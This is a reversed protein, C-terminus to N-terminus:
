RSAMQIPAILGTMIDVVSEIDAACRRFAEVPSRVPDPLDDGDAPPVPLKARIVSVAAIMKQLRAQPPWVATLDAPRLAAAYRGFQLLTFTRRVASPDLAVCDSRQRRTATLVLDARRVLSETLRQSVFGTPDAGYERLVEAAFPHMLAGSWAHTGASMVRFDIAHEGMRETVARRALREVMPSRCINAHCVVLVEFQQDPM